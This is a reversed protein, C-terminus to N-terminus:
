VRDCVTLRCLIDSFARGVRCLTQAMWRDEWTDTVDRKQDKVHHARHYYVSIGAILLDLHARHHHDDPDLPRRHHHDVSLFVQADPEALSSESAVL